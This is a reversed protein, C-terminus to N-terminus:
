DQPGAREPGSLVRDLQLEPASAAYEFCQRVVADGLGHEDRLRREVGARLERRTRDLKRSATAESEGLLRGIRALTL